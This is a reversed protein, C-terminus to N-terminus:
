RHRVGVNGHVADDVEDPLVHEGAVLFGGRTRHATEDGGHATAGDHVLQAEAGGIAGGLADGVVVGLPDTQGPGEAADAVAGSRGEGHFLQGDVSAVDHLHQLDPRTRAHALYEVMQQVLH